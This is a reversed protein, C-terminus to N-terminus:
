KVKEPFQKAIGMALMDSMKLIQAHVNEFAAVDAKWDKGLRAELEATTAKLHDEMMAKMEGAPWNM